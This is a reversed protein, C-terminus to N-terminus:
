NQDNSSVKLHGDIQPIEKGRGCSILLMDEDVPKTLAQNSSRGRSFSIDIVPKAKM